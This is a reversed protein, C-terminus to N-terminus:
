AVQLRHYICGVRNAHFQHEVGWWFSIVALPRCAVRRAVVREM